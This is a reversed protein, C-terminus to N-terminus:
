QSTKDYLHQMLAYYSYATKLVSLFSGISLQIIKGVTIFLPKQSRCLMILLLKRTASSSHLWNYNYCADAVDNGKNTMLTAFWCCIGIEFLVNFTFICNYYFHISFVPAVHTLQFLGNCICTVSVVCQALFIYTFVDEISNVYSIIANHREACRKIFRHEEKELTEISTPTFTTIEEILMDLQATAVNALGMVLMDFCIGIMILYFSCVCQLTLLLYFTTTTLPHSFTIPLPYSSYFPKNLYFLITGGVLYVFFKGILNSVRICNDQHKQMEPPYAHFIPSDMSDLMNKLPGHKTFQFLIIKVSFGIYLGFTSLHMSLTKYDQRIALMKLEDIVTLNFVICVITIFVVKMTRYLSTDDNPWIETIVLVKETIAISSRWKKKTQTTEGLVSM